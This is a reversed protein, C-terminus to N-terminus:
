PRTEQGLVPLQLRLMPSSNETDDDVRVQGGHSEALRSAIAMGLGDREFRSLPAALPFRLEVVEGQLSGEVQLAAGPELGHVACALVRDLIEGVRTPDVSVRASMAAPELNTHVPNERSRGALSAALDAIDLDMLRLEVPRLFSLTQRVLQEIGSVVNDLDDIMGGAEEVAGDFRGRLQSTMYYFRHFQNGLDHSVERLVASIRTNSSEDM